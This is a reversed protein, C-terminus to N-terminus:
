SFTVSFLLMPLLPTYHRRLMLPRIAPMLTLTVADIFPLLSLLSPSITL